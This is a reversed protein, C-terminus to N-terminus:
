PNTGSLTLAIDTLADWTNGAALGKIMQDIEAAKALLTELLPTKLRKLAAKVIPKRKDWVGHAYLLKEVNQKHTIAFRLALLTRIEKTLAWLILTPEERAQKLSQIMRLTRKSDGSLATDALTFIDYRANDSMAHMVDQLQLMKKDYLLALKEIEQKAALLNGEVQEAIFHVAEPSASLGAQQLRDRIWHPLQQATIPWCQVIDGQTEIEKCWKNNISAGDMKKCKLVIIKTDSPKECYQLMLDKATDTLKHSLLNIELLTNEDFLSFNNIEDSIKYWDFSRDAQHRQRAQFGNKSATQYIADAAEEVLLTEDGTILYIPKLSENLSAQLRNSPIKM